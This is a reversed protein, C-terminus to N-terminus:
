CAAENTQKNNGKIKKNYLVWCLVLVVAAAAGGAAEQGGLLVETKKFTTTKKNKCARVTCIYILNAYDDSATLSSSINYLKQENQLVTTQNQLTTNIPPSTSWTLEPKPYIGESSCTIRNGVQDINVNTVPADVTLHIYLEKNGHLTNTYCSYAGEDQIKVETLLLSANGNSLQDRFLSTRNKFNQHQEMLQDQNDNFFHVRLDHKEKKVWRILDKSSSKFSCPLICSEMFICSVKVDSVRQTFTSGRRRDCLHNQQIPYGANGSVNIIFGIIFSIINYLQLESLLQVTISYFSLIISWTPEGEDLHSDNPIRDEEQPIIITQVRAQKRTTANMWEIDVDTNSQNCSELGRSVETDEECFTLFTLILLVVACNVRSM